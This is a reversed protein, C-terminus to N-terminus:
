PVLYKVFPNAFLLVIAVLLAYISLSEIIAIGIIMATQIPGAAEPQRAIGEAAQGIARGQGIGGGLAALGIGLAAAIACASFFLVLDSGSAPQAVAGTGASMKESAQATMAVLLVAVGSQGVAYIWKKM